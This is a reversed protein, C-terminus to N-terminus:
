GLKYEQSTPESKAKLLEQILKFSLDPNQEAILALQFYYEIQSPVSRHEVKAIRKAESVLRDSLKVTVAM